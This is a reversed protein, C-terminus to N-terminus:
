RTAGERVKKKKGKVPKQPEVYWSNSTCYTGTGSASARCQEMTDYACNPPSSSGIPRQTCFRRNQAQSPEVSTALTTGVPGIVQPRSSVILGSRPAEIM